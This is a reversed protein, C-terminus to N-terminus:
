VCVVEGTVRSASLADIRKRRAAKGSPDSARARGRRRAPRDMKAAVLDPEGAERPLAEGAGGGGTPAPADGVAEGTVWADAALGDIPSMATERTRGRDQRPQDPM